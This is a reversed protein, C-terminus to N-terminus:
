PNPLQFIGVIQLNKTKDKSQTHTQKNNTQKNTQNPRCCYANAAHQKKMVQDMYNTHGAAASQNM